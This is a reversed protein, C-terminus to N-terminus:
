QSRAKKLSIPLWTSTLTGPPEEQEGPHSPYFSGWPPAMAGGEEDDCPFNALLLSPQEGCSLHLVPIWPPEPSVYSVWLNGPGQVADKLQRKEQLDYHFYSLSNICYHKFNLM